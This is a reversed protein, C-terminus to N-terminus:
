YGENQEEEREEPTLPRGNRFLREIHQQPIPRLKHYPQVNNKAIPHFLKLREYLTETRVLDTWRHFEGLLERTRENLIFHIFRSEKGGASPPYQEIAPAADWYSGDAPLLLAGETSSLDGYAGGETKWFHTPKPEGDKYAARKRLENIYETAKVYNGLRGYAEAAILYTEALRAYVGDRQSFETGVDLRTPDLHKLLTLFYNNEHKNRPYWTYPRKAIEAATPNPDLTVFVATDGVKFKPKDLMSADVYGADVDEQKWKPITSANNSIYATKFSKYFRSDNKRDFVDLTYDTPRMRRFPRGNAIDRMMGPRTDYVMQLYLHTRNGSNNLLLANNNFQAAFIIEKNASISENEIKWLDAYNPLLQYTGSLIVQDAWYAASDIDTSQQGRQDTVASGRTLYVKALYHQAAGKTVRGAQSQSTPLVAEAARLDGLIIRYVDEVPEREFELRVDLSGDLSVPIDGFQQVLMFYYFARLFRLEAIREAKGEPTALKTTKGEVEPIMDMALNCSNIARYYASWMDHIYAASVPNLQDVVYSDFYKNQGDAAQMYEDVGYNFLTFSQEGNFLFRLEAYASNVLDEVGKETSYYDYTAQSLPEEELFDKCSFSFTLVMLISFINIKRM